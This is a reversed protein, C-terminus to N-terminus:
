DIPSYTRYRRLAADMINYVKQKLEPVQKLTYGSADVDELFVTRSIGPTLEFFGRYHMREHTDLFLLPKIPTQTEIAIRFAGDYFDKLPGGTENFTGEPFIFISISEHLATKLARVSKARREADRRDVVVVAMRYILGFVPYKVMEYKGLVRVPQHISRVIAPIDMYSIHNAVFIYHNNRDVPAEYIEKHRVGILFYWVVGWASCVKYILNGGKKKGALSFLLVFIVAIFMLAVFTLLAYISYFIQLVRLLTKM